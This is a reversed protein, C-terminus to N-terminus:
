GHTATREHRRSVAAIAVAILAARLFSGGSALGVIWPEIAAGPRM